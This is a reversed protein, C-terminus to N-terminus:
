KNKFCRTLSSYFIIQCKFICLTLLSIILFIWIQFSSIGASIPWAQAIFTCASQIQLYQCNREYSSLLSLSQAAREWGFSLQTRKNVSICFGRCTMFATANKRKDEEAAPIWPCAGEALSTLVYGDCSTAKCYMFKDLGRKCRHLSTAMM